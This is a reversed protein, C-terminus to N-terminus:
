TSLNTDEKRCQNSSLNQAEKKRGEKEKKGGGDGEKRKELM